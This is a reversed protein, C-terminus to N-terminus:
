LGCKHHATAAHRGREGDTRRAIGHADGSRTLRAVFSRARDRDRLVGDGPSVATAGRPVPSRAQKVARERGAPPLADQKM